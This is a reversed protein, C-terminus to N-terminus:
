RVVGRYKGAPWQLFPGNLNNIASSNLSHLHPSPHQLQWPLQAAPLGQTASVSAQAPILPETVPLQGMVQAPNHPNQNSVPTTITQQMVQQILEGPEHPTLLQGTIGLQPMSNRRTLTQRAPIEASPNPQWNASQANGLAPYSAGMGPPPTLFGYNQNFLGNSYLGGPIGMGHLSSSPFLQGRNENYGVQTHVPPYLQGPTVQLESPTPLHPRLNPVNLSVSIDSPTPLSDPMQLENNNGEQSTSAEGSEM